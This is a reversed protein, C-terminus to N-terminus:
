EHTSSLEQVTVAGVLDHGTTILQQFYDSKDIKYIKLLGELLVGEPLLGEFFSPFTEFQYPQEQLPMTLSVPPGNYNKDYQFIYNQKNKETLIGANINHMKVRARRM